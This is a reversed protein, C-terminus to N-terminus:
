KGRERSLKLTFVTETGKTQVTLDGEHIEAIRKAIFLGFGTGAPHKSSANKGRYGRNFISPLEDKDIPIGDSLVHLYYYKPDPSLKIVINSEKNAYKTANELLNYIIQAILNKIGHIKPMRAKRFDEEITFIHQKKTFGIPQFDNCLNICLHLLDIEEIETKFGELKHDADLHSMLSFNKILHVLITGQSYISRLLVDKRKIPVVPDRLSEINMKIANIPATLQHAVNQMYETKAKEAQQATLSLKKLEKRLFVIEEKLKGIDSTVQLDLM